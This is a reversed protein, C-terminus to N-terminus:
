HVYNGIDVAATFHTDNNLCVSLFCDTSIVPFFPNNKVPIETIRVANVQSDNIKVFFTQLIINM